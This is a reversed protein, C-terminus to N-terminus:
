KLEHYQKATEKLVRAKDRIEKDADEQSQDRLKQEIQNMTQQLEEYVDEPLHHDNLFQNLDALAPSTVTGSSTHTQRRVPKTKQINQQVMEFLESEDIAAHEHFVLNRTALGNNMSVFELYAYKSIENESSELEKELERKKATGDLSLGFTKEKEEIMSISKRLELIYTALRKVQVAVPLTKMSFAGEYGDHKLTREKSKYFQHLLVLYEEKSFVAQFPIMNEAVNQSNALSCLAEMDPSEGLETLAECWAKAERRHESDEDQEDKTVVERKMRRKTRCIDICIFLSVVAFLFLFGEALDLAFTLDWM